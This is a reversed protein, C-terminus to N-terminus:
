RPSPGFAGVPVDEAEDDDDQDDASESDEKEVPDPGDEFSNTNMGTSDTPVEEIQVIKVNDDVIYGLILSEGVRALTPRSGRVGVTTMRLAPQWEGDVNRVVLSITGDQSAYALYINGRSDIALTPDIQDQGDNGGFVRIESWVGEADQVSVAINYEPGNRLAWAALRQQQAPAEIEVLGHDSLGARFHRPTDLRGSRASVGSFSTVLVSALVMMKLLNIGRNRM